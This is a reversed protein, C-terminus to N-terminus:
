FISKHSPLGIDYMGKPHDYGLRSGSGGALIVCTAKGDRILKLGINKLIEKKDEDMTETNIILNDEIRELKVENSENKLCNELVHDKYLNNTVLPDM